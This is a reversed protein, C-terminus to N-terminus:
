HPFLGVLRGERLCRMRHSVSYPSRLAAPHPQSADRGSPALGCLCAHSYVGQQIAPNTPLRMLLEWSKAAVDVPASLLNSLLVFNDPSATLIVRPNSAASNTLIM